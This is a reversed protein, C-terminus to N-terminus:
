RDQKHSRVYFLTQNNWSDLDSIMGLSSLMTVMTPLDHHNRWGHKVVRKRLEELYQKEKSILRSPVCVYSILFHDHYEALRTLTGRIDNLYECVGSLVCVDTKEVSFSEVNLDLVANGHDWERIDYTKVSFDYKAAVVKTFPVYPGCGYESFTWSHDMEEREAFMSLLSESRDSWKESFSDKSLWRQKITKDKM